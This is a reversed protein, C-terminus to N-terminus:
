PKNTKIFQWIPHDEGGKATFNYIIHSDELFANFKVGTIKTKNYDM